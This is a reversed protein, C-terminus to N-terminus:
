REVPRLRHPAGSLGPEDILDQPHFAVPRGPVQEPEDLPDLSLHPASGAGAEARPHDVDVDEEGATADDVRRTEANGMRTQRLPPEDQRGQGFDRGPRNMGKQSFGRGPKEPFGGIPGADREDVSTSM